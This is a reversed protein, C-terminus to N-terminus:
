KDAKATTATAKAAKFLADTFASDNFLKIVADKLAAELAFQANKGSAVQLKPKTGEGTILKSFLIAGEPAKVQVNMVLEAAASGSWFGTKFDSYFKSLETAVLITGGAVDFRPRETRNRNREAFSQRRRQDRHHRGNEMGYGNKKVSVKDKTTRTDAIEIKLKVDEAGQIRAVNTQASYNIAVYDKTLACGSALLAVAALSGVFFLRQINTTRDKQISNRNTKM